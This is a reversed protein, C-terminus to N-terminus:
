CRGLSFAFELELVLTNPKLNANISIAIFIGAM